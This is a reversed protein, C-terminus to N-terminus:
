SGFDTIIENPLKKAKPSNWVQTIRPLAFKISSLNKKIRTTNSRRADNWVKIPIKQHLGIAEM